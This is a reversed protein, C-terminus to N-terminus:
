ISKEPEHSINLTTRELFSMSLRTLEYMRATLTHSDELNNSMSYNDFDFSKNFQNNIWNSTSDVDNSFTEFAFPIEFGPPNYSYGYINAEIKNKYENTNVFNLIKDIQSTNWFSHKPFSMKLLSFGYLNFSHYGIAKQYLNGSDESVKRKYSLYPKTLQNRKSNPLTHKVLGSLHINFNESVKELFSSIINKIEDNHNALLGGAAAFWLQHNFADDITSHSGDVNVRKWLGFESLYPHLLFVEISTEIAQANNTKEGITALAEITWAPGILGNCFDKEPNMRHFFNAQMPRAEKSLLYEVCKTAADYYKQDGTIEFVKYFLIAWHSSNRVPTEPDFYLGNHGPPMAGSEIQKKLGENAVRTLLTLLNIKM